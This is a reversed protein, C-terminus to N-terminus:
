KMTIIITSGQAEIKQMYEMVGVIQFRIDNVVQIAPVSTIIFSIQKGAVTADGYVDLIKFNSPQIGLSKHYYRAIPAIVNKHVYELYISEKYSLNSAIYMEPVFYDPNFVPITTDNNNLETIKNIEKETLQLIDKKILHIYKAMMTYSVHTSKISQIQNYINKYHQQALYEISQGTASVANMIVSYTIAGAITRDVEDTIPLSLSANYITRLISKYQIM